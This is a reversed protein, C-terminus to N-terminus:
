QWRKLKPITDEAVSKAEKEDMGMGVAIEINKAIKEHMDIGEDTFSGNDFCYYCYEDNKSGDDNTGFYKESMPMGCSHCIKM